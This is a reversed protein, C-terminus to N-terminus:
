DINTNGLQVRCATVEAELREIQRITQSTIGTKGSRAQLCSQAIGYAEQYRAEAEKAKESMADAAQNADFVERFEISDLQKKALRLKEETKEHDALATELQRDKESLTRASQVLGKKLDALQGRMQERRQLAEELKDTTAQQQARALKAENFLTDRELKILALYPPPDGITPLLEVKDEGNGSATKPAATIAAGGQEQSAEEHYRAAGPHVPFPGDNPGGYPEIGHAFDHLRALTDLNDFIVRTVELAHREAIDAHTVLLLTQNKPRRVIALGHIGNTADRDDRAEASAQDILAFNSIQDQVLRLEDDSDDTPLTNLFLTRDESKLTVLSSIALGFRYSESDREGVALLDAAVSTPLIAQLFLLTLVTGWLRIRGAFLNQPMDVESLIQFFKAVYIAKRQKHADLIKKIPSM